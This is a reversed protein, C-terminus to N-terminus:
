ARADPGVSEAVLLGLTIARSLSFGSNYATGSSNFVAAAGAAYLGRVPRAGADLVRGVEDVDIGTLGIGTSVMTLRMGFFPAEGVPGLNPNPRQNPDGQFKRWTTNGGRGFDPDTGQRAHRNFRDATRALRRGDVGLLEGLEALTGATAIVGAPYDGGPPTTGLGYKRHHQSDWIMWCPLRPSEPALAHRVVEWYVADDCFRDGARDVIFTHPLSHERAVAYGPEHEVPYGLQVPVRNAPVEKVTGGAQRALRFGDGSLSRPAVSGRHEPKLGLYEFALDDDWDYGSTALVVAGPVTHRGGGADAAVAGTVHGDGDLTLEVVDHELRIDVGLGVATALFGAVVGTGFSLLDAPQEGGEGGTDSAGFASARLGASLIRDYTAGVPFHPSVRLRDRWGGLGAGAYTATLYRGAARAGPADQYYDPYGPILSWRVAGVDEFYRAARPAERLWRALARGDILEPHSAGVSRIYREGDDLSDEIGQARQLHNDAIWVQGGSWAAAGGALSSKELVTVAHGRGAAAVATALGALGAGVVVVPTTSM